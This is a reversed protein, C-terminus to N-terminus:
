ARRIMGAGTVLGTMLMAGAAAMFRHRMAVVDVIEDVPMEMVRVAAM